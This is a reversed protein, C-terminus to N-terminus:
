SLWGWVVVCSTCLLDFARKTRTWTGVWAGNTDLDLYLGPAVKATLTIM